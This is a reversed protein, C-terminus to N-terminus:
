IFIICCCCFSLLKLLHIALEIRLALRVLEAHANEAYEVFIAVVREVKGLEHAGYADGHVAVHLVLELAGEGDVVELAVTLYVLLLHLLHQILDVVHEALVRSRQPTAGFDGVFLDVEYEVLEIHVAVVAEAEVLEDVATELVLVELLYEHGAEHM